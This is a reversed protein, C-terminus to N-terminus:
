RNPLFSHLYMQIFPKLYPIILIYKNHSKHHINLVWTSKSWVNATETCRNRCYIWKKSVRENVSRQTRWYCQDQQHFICRCKKGKTRTSGCLVRQSCGFDRWWFWHKNRIRIWGWDREGIHLIPARCFDFSFFDLSYFISLDFGQWKQGKLFIKEFLPQPTQFYGQFCSKDKFAGM